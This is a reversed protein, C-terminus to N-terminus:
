KGGLHMIYYIINFIANLVFVTLLIFPVVSTLWNVVDEFGKFIFYGYFDSISM